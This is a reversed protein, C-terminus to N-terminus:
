SNIPVLNKKEVKYFWVYKCSGCQLDRGKSSILNDKIVFKKECNPCSIIM